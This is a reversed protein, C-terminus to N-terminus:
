EAIIRELAASQMWGKNGDELLVESWDSMTNIVSLKTGEHLLFLDKSSTAPASKVPAATNLVIADTSSTQKSYAMQSYILSGIAVIAGFIATYFGLKRLSLTKSILWLVIAALTVALSILSIVAWSDSSVMKGFNIFWTKMFFQPAPEIKDITRATALSLNYQTDENGPNLLLARNYNLIARGLNNNKFYANGLNYYLAESHEGTSLLEEYLLIAPTYELDTFHKNAQQWKSIKDGGVSQAMANASLVILLIYLLKKM